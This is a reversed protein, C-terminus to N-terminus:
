MCQYCNTFCYHNEILKMKDDIILLLVFSCVSLVIYIDNQVGKNLWVGATLLHLLIHPRILRTSKPGFLSPASYAQFKPSPRFLKPGFSGAVQKTFRVSERRQVAGMNIFPHMHVGLAAMAFIMLPEPLGNIHVVVFCAM